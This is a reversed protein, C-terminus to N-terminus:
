LLDWPNETEVKGTLYCSGAGPLVSLSSQNIETPESKTKTQSQEFYAISQNKRASLCKLLLRYSDKAFEM